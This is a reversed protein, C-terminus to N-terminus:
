GHYHYNNLKTLKSQKIVYGIISSSAGNKKLFLYTKLFDKVKKLEELNSQYKYYKTNVKSLLKTAFYSTIDIDRNFSGGAHYIYKYSTLYYQGYLSSLDKYKSYYYKSVKIIDIGLELNKVAKAILLRNYHNYLYTYLWISDVPKCKCKKKITYRRKLLKITTKPAVVLRLNQKFYYPFSSFLVEYNAVEIFNTNADKEIYFIFKCKDLTELKIEERTNSCTYSTIYSTDKPKPKSQERVWDPIDSYKESVKSHIYNVIGNYLFHCIFIWNPKKEEKIILKLTRAIDELLTKNLPNIKIYTYGKYAKESLRNTKTDKIATNHSTIDSLEEQAHWKKVGIRGTEYILETLQTILKKTINIEVGNPCFAPKIGQVLNKDIIITYDALKLSYKDSCLFRYYETFDTFITQKAYRDKIDELVLDIKDNIVKIVDIDEDEYNINERSLVVPLEGIDFKIALPLGIYDRGLLDFDIKYPVNGLCIHLSTLETNNTRYRFTDTELINFENDYYYKSSQVVVNPFYLLQTKLETSIKWLDSEKVEFKVLTGSLEETEKNSLLTATPIDKAKYITYNYETGEYITIVEYSDVYSLPSKSGIGWGGIMNNNERKNSNFWNMYVKEFTEESMGKGYDRVTFYWIGEECYVKVLVPKDSNNETNADVANSTLERIFSGIPNSYLNKSVANLAFGLDETRIGSQIDKFQGITNEEVPTYSQIKM